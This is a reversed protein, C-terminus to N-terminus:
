PCSETETLPDDLPEALAKKIVDYDFGRGQLFRVRRARDESSQIPERFKRALLARATALAETKLYPLAAAASEKGIGKAELNQIVRRPGYRRSLRNVAQEVYRAESLWGRATFEDLLAEIEAAQAAAAGDADTDVQADDPQM